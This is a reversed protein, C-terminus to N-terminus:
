AGRIGHQKWTSVMASVWSADLGKLLLGLLLLCWAPLASRHLFKRPAVCGCRLCALCSGPWIKGETASPVCVTQEQERPKYSPQLPNVPGWSLPNEWGRPCMPEESHAQGHEWLAAWVCHLSALLVTPNAPRDPYPLGTFLHDRQSVWVRRM